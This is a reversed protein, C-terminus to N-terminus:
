VVQILKCCDLLRQVFAWENDYWSLIRAFNPSVIKTEFPDFISSYSTHNFDVSVLKGEAVSVINKMYSSAAEFITNNILDKDMSQQTSFTFDILSVNTTPVRIASGDIKGALEPMILSIASAAGTKTPIMSMAAARARRLDNHSNDVINQDGTYSHITTVYGNTIVFNDHLIKLIPLLANTTCSGISIINDSPDLDEHNVGFIITRDANECPASVIIKKVNRSFHASAKDKSNFKGSCEIVLDIGEWEILSPDKQHFVPIAKDNVILCNNDVRCCFPFRGHVSDYNILHCIIDLSGPSNLAVIDIERREIAARFVLRGIRGLGNIAVRM